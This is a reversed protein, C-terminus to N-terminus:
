QSKGDLNVAHAHHMPTDAGGRMARALARDMMESLQKRPKGAPVSLLASATMAVIAGALANMTPVEFQKSIEDVCNSIAKYLITTQRQEEAKWKAIQDPTM